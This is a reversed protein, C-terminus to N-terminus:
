LGKSFYVKEQSHFEVEMEKSPRESIPPFVSVSLPLGVRLATVICLTEVATKAVQAQPSIGIMKLMLILTTPIIVSSSSMIARSMSTETVASKAALKSIGLKNTMKEDGFIEIGKNIEAYRMAYTNCFSAAAGATAGVMTNLLLLGTGTAKKTMGASLKRLSLGM